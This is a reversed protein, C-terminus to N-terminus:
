KVSQIEFKFPEKNGTLIGSIIKNIEEAHSLVLVHGGKSIVHSPSTYVFPFVEDRTGHIHYLNDPTKQNTWNLVANIGWTIFAPDSERIMEITVKKDELPAPNLYHKTIAAIKYFSGPVIKQIKLKRIWQYYGPLQSITPISGIIITALPNLRTSIESAIIGGLSVGIIYYPETEDIAEALRFAYSSLSEYKSPEIWDIFVPEYGDPLHINKFIRSDAAIGALFYVKM